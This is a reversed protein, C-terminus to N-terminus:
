QATVSYTISLSCSSNATYRWSEALTFTLYVTYTNTNDGQVGGAAQQLTTSLPFSGGCSGSGGGGSVSATSCRVQVASVPITPCNSFTSSSAQLSVNWTQLHSGSLVQWSLTAPSSASVAGGDPNSATFSINSPSVTVVGVTSLAIGLRSAAPGM